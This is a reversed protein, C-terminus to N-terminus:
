PVSLNADCDQWATHPRPIASWTQTDQARQTDHNEQATPCTSPPFSKLALRGTDGAGNSDDRLSHRRSSSRAIYKALSDHDNPPKGSSIVTTGDFQNM